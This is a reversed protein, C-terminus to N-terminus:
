SAFEPMVEAAFAKLIVAYDDTTGPPMLLSLQTVGWKELQRIRETCEDADGVIAFADIAQDTIMPAVAQPGGESYKKKLLAVFEPEFGLTRLVVEPAGGMIHGVVPRLNDLVAKRQNTLHVTVWSVIDLESLTRGAKTAGGEILDFAYALGKESCLGGIIAGDAVEGATALIMPGRGALYLQLDPRADFEIQASDVTFEEGRFVVPRGSLMERVVLLMERCKLAIRGQDIGLPGLLEKNNGAGIGLVARGRSVEDFTAVARAAISPHRTYPNTVGVGLHIRNTRAACLGLMVYPDRFFTQDPLWAYDYGLEEALVVLQVHHEFYESPVHGFGFRM